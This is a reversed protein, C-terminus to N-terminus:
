LKSHTSDHEAEQTPQSESLPSASMANLIAHRGTYLHTRMISEAMDPDRAVFAEILMRHQRLSTKLGEEGYVQLTRYVFPLFTYREWLGELFANAGARAILRHFQVNNEVLRRLGDNWPMWGRGARDLVEEAESLLGKLVILDADTIRQAARRAAYGEILLRLDYIDYIEKKDYKRVVGGRNRQLIILGDAELLTLAERIPTRSVGYRAALKEEILRAGPPLRGEVIEQRLETYIFQAKDGSKLRVTQERKM